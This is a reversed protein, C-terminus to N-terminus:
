NWLLRHGFIFSPHLVGKKALSSWWNVPTIQFGGQSEVEVRLGHNGIERGLRRLRAAVKERSWLWLRTALIQDRLGHGM